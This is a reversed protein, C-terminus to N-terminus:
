SYFDIRTVKGNKVTLVFPLSELGQTKNISSIADKKNMRSPNPDEGGNGYFKVNKALTFTRTAKNLKTAKGKIDARNRKTGKALNGKVILKNGKISIKSNSVGTGEEGKGKYISSYYVISSKKVQTYKANYLIGSFNSIFEDINEGNEKWIAKFHTKNSWKLNVKAYKSGTNMKITNKSIVKGAFKGEAYSSKVTISVKKSNIRKITIKSNEKSNKYTVNLNGKFNKTTAVKANGTGATTGLVVALIFVLMMMTKRLKTM